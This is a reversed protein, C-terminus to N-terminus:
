LERRLSRAIENLVTLGGDGCYHHPSRPPDEDPVTRCRRRAAEVRPDGSPVSIFDDWEWPDVTGLAFREILDAAEAATMSREQLGEDRGAVIDGSRRGARNMLTLGVTRSM